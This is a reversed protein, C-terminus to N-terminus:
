AAMDMCGRDPELPTPPLEAPPAPEVCGRGVPAAEAPGVDGPEVAPCGRGPESPAVPPEPALPPEADARPPAAPAAGRDDDAACGVRVAEAVGARGVDDPAAM